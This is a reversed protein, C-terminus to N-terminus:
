SSIEVKLLRLYHQCAGDLPSDIKEFLKLAQAFQGEGYLNVAKEFDVKGAAKIQRHSADDAEFVELVAVRENKGKVSSYGVFRLLFSEHDELHNYVERSILIRSGLDKTLGELRSALNVSDAIVTTQMRQPEGITGMMLTGMHIGTGTLIPAQGLKEREQNMSRLELAMEVATRVADDASAPFIAMIGDGLYKDIFGRNKRIIPAIRGLYNNLFNITQKPTLTEALSSFGRIDTFLIVMEKQIQDGLQVQTLNTKDLYGLFEVPVFRELSRNLELLHQHYEQIRDAMLNYNMKLDFLEKIRTDLEVRCSYDMEGFRKVAETLTIIPRSIKGAMLISVFIIIVLFIATLVGAVFFVDTLFLNYNTDSIDLGLVALFEGTEQDFIPAFGMLSNVKFAEDYIFKPEIAPVREQLAKRATLQLSIDYRSNFGSIEEKLPLAKVELERLKIVDADAIFRAFNPDTDPVLIYAYLILDPNTDRLLNLTKYIRRYEMSNEVKVSEQTTWNRNESKSVLTKLDQTDIGRAGLVVTTYLRDVTEEFVRKQLTFFLSSFVSILLIFSLLFFITGIYVKFKISQM